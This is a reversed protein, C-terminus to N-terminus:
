KQERKIGKKKEYAAVDFREIEDRLIPKIIESTTEVKYKSFFLEDKIKLIDNKGTKRNVKGSYLIHDNERLFLRIAHEDSDRKAKQLEPTSLPIGNCDSTEPNEERHKKLLHNILHSMSEGTRATRRECYRKNEPDLGVATQERKAM